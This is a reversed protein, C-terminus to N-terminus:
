LSYNFAAAYRAPYNTCLMLDPSIAALRRMEAADDVTWAMVELGAERFELMSQPTIQRYHISLFQAELERLKQVLQGTRKETILGTRIGNSLARVKRLASEDFSTIVTDHELRHKYLLEVTREELGPYRGNYTKLEVNLRCRGATAELVEELLPIREGSFSRGFWRGADAQQLEAATFSKVPGRSNTTRNLTDDHIVVPIGDSSLQVDLEIWQVFEYDMARRMAALTNEPAEGSAGRHAVCRNM